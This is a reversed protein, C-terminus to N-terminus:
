YFVNAGNKKLLPIIATKANENLPNDNLFLDTLSTLGSLPRLDNIRNYSLALAELSTNSESCATLFVMFIFLVVSLVMGKCRMM